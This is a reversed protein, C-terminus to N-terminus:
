EMLKLYVKDAQEVKKIRGKEILTEVAADFATKEIPQKGSQASTMVHNMFIAEVLELKSTFAELVAVEEPSPATPSFSEVTAAVPLVAAIATALNKGGVSESFGYLDAIVHVAYDMFAKVSPFSGKEVLEQIFDVLNPPLDIDIEM